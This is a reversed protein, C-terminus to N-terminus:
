FVFRAGLTNIWQNYNYNEDSYEINSQNRIYSTDLYLQMLPSIFYEHNYNVSFQRDSREDNSLTDLQYGTNKIKTGVAMTHRGRDLQYVAKLYEGSNGLGEGLYNNQFVNGQISWNKSGYNVQYKVTTSHSSGEYDSYGSDQPAKDTFAYSLYLKNDGLKKAVDVKSVIYELVDMGSLNYNQRTFSAGYRYDGSYYHIPLSLTMVTTDLNNVLLREQFYDLIISADSNAKDWFEVNGTLALQAQMDKQNAGTFEENLILDDSELFVNNNYGTNMDLELSYGAGHVISTALWLISFGISSNLRKM